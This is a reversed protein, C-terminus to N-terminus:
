PVSQNVGEMDNLAELMQYSLKRYGAFKKCPTRFFEEGVFSSNKFQNVYPCFIGGRLNCLVQLTLLRIMIMIAILLVQFLICNFGLDFIRVCASDEM